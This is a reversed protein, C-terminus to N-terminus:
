DVYLFENSNLLVHCFDVLARHDAAISLSLSTTQPLRAQRNLFAGAQWLEEPEPRRGFALRYALIIRERDDASAPELRELRNALARARALTWAGNFLLLAQNATTTTNRRATSASG